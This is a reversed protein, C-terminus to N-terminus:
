SQKSEWANLLERERECALGAKPAYDPPRTAAWELADRVTEDVPRFTLGAALAKRNDFSFFGSMAPDSEPVWVPLETWAAVHHASLFHEDVWVIRNSSRSQRRCADLFEGMSVPPTPGIANYIGGQRREVMNIIWDAIDRVDIFQIVREPRGPALVKGGAAIRSPWYTFRDTPDRTGVILGPRPIFFREPMRRMVVQECLAKLPGYTEANVSEITEDALTALPAYEDIRDATLDAYVSLTSVFCYQGTSDALADVSRQVEAPVYGCTDIVADWRRGALMQMDRARDGHIAEVSPFAGPNSKGRNFLTLAHGRGLAAQVLAHGLFVTGGLILIDM